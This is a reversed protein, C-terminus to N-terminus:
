YDLNKRIKDLAAWLDALKQKKAKNRIELILRESTTWRKSRPTWKTATDNMVLVRGCVAPFTLRNRQKEKRSKPFGRHSQKGTREQSAGTATQSKFEQVRHGHLKKEYENKKKSGQLYGLKALIDFSKKTKRETLKPKTTRWM